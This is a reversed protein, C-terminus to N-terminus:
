FLDFRSQQCQIDTNSWHKYRKNGNWRSNTGDLCPCLLFVHELLTGSMVHKAVLCKFYSLQSLLCSDCWNLTIQKYTKILVNQEYKKKWSEPKNWAWYCSVQRWFNNNVDLFEQLSYTTTRFCILDVVAMYELSLIYPPLVHWTQVWHSCTIEECTCAYICGITTKNQQNLVM